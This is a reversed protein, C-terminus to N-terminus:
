VVCDEGAIRLMHVGLINCKEMEVVFGNHWFRSHGLQLDQDFVM